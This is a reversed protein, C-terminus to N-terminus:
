TQTPPPASITTQSVAKQQILFQQLQNSLQDTPNKQVLGVIVDAHPGSIHRAKDLISQPADPLIEYLLSSQSYILELHQARM